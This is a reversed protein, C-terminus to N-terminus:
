RSAPVTGAYSRWPVKRGSTSPAAAVTALGTFVFNTVQVWGLDGNALLSWSHKGLDFGERTLALALSVGVYLPGALVGYGLLSRTIRVASTCESTAYTTM